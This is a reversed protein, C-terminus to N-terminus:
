RKPLYWLPNVPKGNKRVEFHLKTRKTGTSGMEAIMQGRSVMQGEQVLLRRNHAYASLFISNHKIILLQGYGILGSGSYVVKGNAASRVAQGMPGNIDIGQRGTKQSSFSSIIKGQTPWQWRLKRNDDPERKAARKKVSIASKRIPKPPPKKAVKVRSKAVSKPVATKTVVGPSSPEPIEATSTSLPMVRLRQGKNITYPSTIANWGALDRYEQGFQWSISYLTDGPKVTYYGLPASCGTVLLLMAAYLSLAKLRM